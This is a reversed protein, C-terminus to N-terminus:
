ADPVPRCATAWFASRACRQPRLPRATSTTATATASASPAALERGDCAVGQAGAAPPRGRGGSRHTGATAAWPLECAAHTRATSRRRHASDLKAAGAVSAGISPTIARTGCTVLTGAAALSCDIPRPAALIGWRDAATPSSAPSVATSTTATTTSGDRLWLWAPTTSHLDSAATSTATSSSITPAAPLQVLVCAHGM